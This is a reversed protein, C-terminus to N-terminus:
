AQGLQNNGGVADEADKIETEFQMEEQERKGEKEKGRVRKRM